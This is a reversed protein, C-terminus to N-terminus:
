GSIRGRGGGPPTPPSTSSIACITSGARRPPSAPPSGSSARSAARGPRTTFGLIEVKVGCRELTRALIDACCAAVMIPRGRMSGSNDLLLTVVTDRFTTDRERKFSLPTFPDTVVRSLRATDLIGEELDFDWARNQQALLRRQLRNALRRVAVHLHTLQKDLFARLRELEEPDCLEEAGVMEDFQRSFVQYGFEEPADLVSRNPRRPPAHPRQEDDSDSEMEGEGTAETLETEQEASATESSEEEASTPRRDKERAADESQSESPKNGDQEESSASEESGQGLEEALDLATLVERLLKGFAEQDDINDALRDILGGAREDVWARWAEVIPLAKKPPKARLIRERVMLAVADDLPADERDAAAVNARSDFRAETKASLNAAVGKMRLAGIAEVRAREVAEFVNRAMGAPPALRAHLADDHCALTLAISDAHGRLVAVEKRSPSRSPQPLTVTTGKVGPAEASYTVSLAPNGALARTALALAQKFPTGPDNKRKQSPM